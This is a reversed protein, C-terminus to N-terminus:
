LLKKRLDKDKTLEIDIKQFIVRVCWSGIMNVEKEWLLKKRINNVWRPYRLIRRGKNVIYKRVYRVVLCYTAVDQYMYRIMERLKQNDLM